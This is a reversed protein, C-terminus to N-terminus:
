VIDNTAASVVGGAPYSVLAGKDDEDSVDYTTCKDSKVELESWQQLAIAM